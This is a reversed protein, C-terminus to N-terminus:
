RTQQMVFYSMCSENIQKVETPFYNQPYPYDLFDVFISGGHAIIDVTILYYYYM